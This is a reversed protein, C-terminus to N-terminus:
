LVKVFVTLSPGLTHYLAITIPSAWEFIFRGAGVEVERYSRRRAFVVGVALSLRLDSTHRVAM